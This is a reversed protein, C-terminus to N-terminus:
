TNRQLPGLSWPHLNEVEYQTWVSSLITFSNPLHVAAMWYSFFPIFWFYITRHTPSALFLFHESDFLFILPFSHFSIRMSLLFPELLWNITLPRQEGRTLCTTNRPTRIGQKWDHDHAFLAQRSGWIRNTRITQLATQTWRRFRGSEYLTSLFFRLESAGFYICAM